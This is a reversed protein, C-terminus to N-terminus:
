ASKAAKYEQIYNYIREFLIDLNHNDYLDYDYQIIYSNSNNGPVYIVKIYRSLGKINEALKEGTFYDSHKFTVTLTTPYSLGIFKFNFKDNWKAYIKRTGDLAMM